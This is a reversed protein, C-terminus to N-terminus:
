DAKFAVYKKNLTVSIGKGTDLNTGNTM